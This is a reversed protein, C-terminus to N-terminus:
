TRISEVCTRMIEACTRLVEVLDLRLTFRKGSKARRYRSNRTRSITGCCLPNKGTAETYKAKVTEETIGLRELESAYWDKISRYCKPNSNIRELGTKSPSDRDINTFVFFFETVNFWSRLTSTKKVNKWAIARFTPKHWLGYSNYELNTHKSIYHLLEAAQIPDNHWFIFTGNGKLVREVEDIWEGCWEVYNDIIDWAAKGINYPPDTLVLNVSADPLTKVIELADGNYLQM